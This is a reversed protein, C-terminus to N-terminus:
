LGGVRVEKLLMAAAPSHPATQRVARPLHNHGHLGHLAHSVSAKAERGSEQTKLARTHTPAGASTPDSSWLVTDLILLQTQDADQRISM